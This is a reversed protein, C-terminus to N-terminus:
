ETLWPHNLAETANYRLNVDKELLRQLFDRFDISWTKPYHIPNKPRRDYVLFYITIGLSFLDTKNTIVQGNAQEPSLYEKTQKCEFDILTIQGTDEDYIINEPKIDRHVVNLNHIKELIQLIKKVIPKIEQETFNGKDNIYDILDMGSAKSMIVCNIKRSLSVALVKPVNDVTKLKNLIESERKAYKQCSYTKIIWDIKKKNVVISYINKVDENMKEPKWDENSLLDELVKADDNIFLLDAYDSM